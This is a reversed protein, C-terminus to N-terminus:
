HCEEAGAWAKLYSLADPFVRASGDPNSGAIATHGGMEGRARLWTPYAHPM